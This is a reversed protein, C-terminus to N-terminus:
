QRLEDPASLYIPCDSVPCNNEYSHKCYFRDKIYSQFVGNYTIRITCDEDLTPCYGTIPKEIKNM